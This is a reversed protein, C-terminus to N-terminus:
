ATVAAPPLARSGRRAVAEVIAAAVIQQAAGWGQRVSESAAVSRESQSEGEVVRSLADAIGGATPLAWSVHPNRLDARSGVSDNVIPITGCALMEEAVLSINTFSMAIGALSANYLQNLQVPTLREHRTVPTRWNRIPDGYVHIQQEPHREHFEELGRQALLFGRRDVGPKAYFVVGSRAGRNSLSYVDTDCGFPAVLRPIELAALEQAVMEGLAINTFGFRYSDEALAQLSGRPYFYPEFDQIFYLLSARERIRSALVHATEWSSAVVADVGRIGETADRIEVQLQPWGQRIVRAQAERDGGHRDYLYLICRHGRATLGAVMRFLTTHGGSGASPPTCVWGITLPERTLPETTLPETTLPDTTLPDKTAAAPFTPGAPLAAFNPLRTSDGVDEPLLPFQLAAADFQDYLRRIVRRGVDAVGNSQLRRVIQVPNTKM